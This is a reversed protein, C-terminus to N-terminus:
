NVFDLKKPAKWHIFQDSLTYLKEGMGAKL